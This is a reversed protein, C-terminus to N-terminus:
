VQLSSLLRIYKLLSPLWLVQAVSQVSSRMSPAVSAYIITEAIPNSSKRGSHRLVALFCRMQSTFNEPLLCQWTLHIVYKQLAIMWEHRLNFVYFTGSSQANKGEHTSHYGCLRPVGHKIMFFDTIVGVPVFDTRIGNSGTRQTRWKESPEATAVSARIRKSDSLRLNFQAMSVNGHIMTPRIVAMHSNM